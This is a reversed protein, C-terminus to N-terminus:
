FESDPSMLSYAAELAAQRETFHYENPILRAVKMRNLMLEVARQAGVIMVRQAALHSDLVVEELAMVTSVDIHPVNSFDLLLIEHRTCAILKNSIGKAAAYSLPGNLQYLLIKGAAATLMDSEHKNLLQHDKKDDQIIRVSDLQTETLRKVTYINALFVGVAVATILDVFVTLGWVAVMLFMVFLPANHVRKLFRWDIIDIGVKILIGALVALPIHAAFSGAGLVIALLIVAHFIGSLPTRGGARINVVTRMTAGAGPLGGFLGALMNGIGQGILERESKHQTRTMNDAVLSTLLSDISGLTALMLASIVMEKALGLSFEPWHLSPLGTPIEGIVDVGSFALSLLTGIVMALLPPPTFKALAKPCFFVIVLTVVGLLLANVNVSQVITPLQQLVELVNAVSAAGLLPALQLLIIITGIGTMFGSIVPFPMLTIFQGLRFVGFLVQFAGGLMVVTFAMAPGSVPDLAVFHTFIGAMVVTMPGTPGSVQSPTGGFLSAFLGVFIAGYMGAVPGAGSAVGFALALPLAVIAATLGGFLDGKFNNFFGGYSTLM